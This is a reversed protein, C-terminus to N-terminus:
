DPKRAMWARTTYPVQIEPGGLGVLYEEIEDVVSAFGEGAQRQLTAHSRWAEVVDEIRQVHRITGEISELSDFLGSEAIVESQDERRTGYGYGAVRRHLIAEIEAQVPDDLDRHNWMCAFWRGPKLIRHTERMTLSRDAVNFSSGFTVLDFSADPQRTDHSTAEVWTANMGATRASGNRRMADNPEVAVVTLGWRALHLTLHAVGAGIDCARDLEAVGARRRIADLAESSYDPRKLYADALATYDWETKM